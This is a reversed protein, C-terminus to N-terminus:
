RLLPIVRGSVESSSMERGADETVGLCSSGRHSRQPERCSYFLRDPAVWDTEPEGQLAAAIARVLAVQRDLSRLARTTDLDLTVRPNDPM